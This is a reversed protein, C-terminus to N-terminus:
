PRGPFSQTVRPAGALLRFRTITTASDTLGALAIDRLQPIDTNGIVAFWAHGCDTEVVVAFDRATTLDSVGPATYSPAPAPPTGGGASVIASVQDRRALHTARMTEILGNDDPDNASILGYAWIAANERSVADILADLTDTPLTSTTGEPLSPEPSTM